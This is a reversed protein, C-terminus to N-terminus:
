TSPGCYTAVVRWAPGGPQALHAEGRRVGVVWLPRDEEDVLLPVSGRRERPVRAEGLLDSVLRSGPGGHLRMRDGRRWARVTLTGPGRRDVWCIGRGEDDFRAPAEGEELAITWGGWCLAQGPVLRAPAHGAASPHAPRLVLRDYERAATWGGGLDAAASGERREMLREVAAVQGAAPSRGFCEALLAHLALSQLGPVAIDAVAVALSGQRRDVKGALSDAVLRDLADAQQQLVRANRGLTQVLGPALALLGPMIEHRLRNRLFRHSANSPDEVVPLDQAAAWAELEARSVELLPRRFPGQVSRMGGLGHVGAGRLLRILVTEAQDDAHHGLWITAGEPAADVLAALREERAREALSDGRSAARRALGPALRVLRHPVGLGRCFDATVRAETSFDRLGHDVTVALFATGRPSALTLLHLLCTSDLGGSCAVVAPLAGASLGLGPLTDRVHRLLDRKM